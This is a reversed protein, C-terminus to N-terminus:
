LAGQLYVESHSVRLSGASFAISRTDSEVSVRLVDGDTILVTREAEARIGLVRLDAVDTFEIWFCLTNYEQEKWASKPHEPMEQTEFGFTVSGDREDMHVYFFRCTDLDPMSEAGYLSQLESWDSSATMECVSM